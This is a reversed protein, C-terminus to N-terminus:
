MDNIHLALNKASIKIDEETFGDEFVIRKVFGKGSKKGVMSLSYELHPVHGWITFYKMYLPYFGKYKVSEFAVEVGNLIHHQLFIIDKNKKYKKLFENMFIDIFVVPNKLKENDMNAM